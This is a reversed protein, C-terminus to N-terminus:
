NRKSWKGFIVVISCSPPYFTETKYQEPTPQFTTIRDNQLSKRGAGAAATCLRPCSLQLNPDEGMQVEDDWYFGRDHAPAYLPLDTQDPAPRRRLLPLPAAPAPGPFFFRWPLRRYLSEAQRREDVNLYVRSM